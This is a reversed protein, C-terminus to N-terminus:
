AAINVAIEAVAIKVEAAAVVTFIRALILSAIRARPLM